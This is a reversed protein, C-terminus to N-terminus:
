DDAPLVAPAQGTWFRNLGNWWRRSEPLLFREFDATEIQQDHGAHNQLSELFGITALERVYPDGEVHLREIVAFAAEVEDFRRAKFLAILHVAFESADLYHLRTGDDNLHITDHELEASWRQEFSPTADLLLPM